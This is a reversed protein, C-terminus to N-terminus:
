DGHKLYGLIQFKFRELSDCYVCHYGLNKFLELQRMQRRDHESPKRNNEHPIEGPKKMEIYMGHCGRSPYSFFLDPIAPVVGIAKFRAAERKTRKGGNPIHFMLRRYEPFANWFWKFCEAQIRDESDQVM